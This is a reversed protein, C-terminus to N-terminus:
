LNSFVSSLDYAGVIMYLLKGAVVASYAPSVDEFDDMDGTVDLLSGLDPSIAYYKCLSQLGGQHLLSM